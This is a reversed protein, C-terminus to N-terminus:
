SGGGTQLRGVGGAAVLGPRIKFLSQAPRAHNSVKLVQRCDPNVGVNSELWHAGDKNCRLSGGANFADGWAFGVRCGRKNKMDPLPGCCSPTRGLPLSPASM